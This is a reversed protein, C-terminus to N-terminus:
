YCNHESQDFSNQLFLHRVKIPRFLPLYKSITLLIRKKRLWIEAALMVELYLTVLFTKYSYNQSNQFFLNSVNEQFYVFHKIVSCQPFFLYVFKECINRGLDEFFVSCSLFLQQWLIEMTSVQAHRCNKQFIKLIKLRHVCKVLCFIAKFTNESLFVVVLLFEPLKMLLLISYYQKFNFKDPFRYQIM